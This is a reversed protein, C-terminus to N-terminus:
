SGLSIARTRNGDDAGTIRTSSSSSPPPVRPARLRRSVRQHRHPFLCAILRMRRLPPLNKPAFTRTDFVTPCLVPASRDVGTPTSEPTSPVQDSRRMPSRRGACDPTTSCCRPCCGVLHGDVDVATSDGNQGLLMCPASRSRAQFAIVVADGCNACYSFFVSRSIGTMRRVGRHDSVSRATRALESLM